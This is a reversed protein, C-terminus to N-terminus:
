MWLSALTGARVVTRRCHSCQNDEANGSSTLLCLPALFSGRLVFVFSVLCVFHSITYLVSRRLFVFSPNLAFRSHLLLRTSCPSLITLAPSSSRMPVAHVGRISLHSRPSPTLRIFSTGKALLCVVLFLVVSTSSPTRLLSPALLSTPFAGLFLLFPRASLRLLSPRRVLSSPLCFLSSHM